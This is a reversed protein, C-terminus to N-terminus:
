YPMKKSEFANMITVSYSSESKGTHNEYVKLGYMGRNYATLTKHWNHYGKHEKGNGYQLYHLYCISLKISYYPDFLQSPHFTMGYMSSIWKATSPMFQSIGYAKGFRTQPGVAKANFTGGTEVSLLEYVMPFPISKENSFRMLEKIQMENLHISHVYENVPISDVREAFVPLHFSLLTSMIIFAMFKRM